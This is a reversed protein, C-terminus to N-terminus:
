QRQGLPSIAGAVKFNKDPNETLKYIKNPAHAGSSTVQILNDTASAFGLFMLGSALIGTRM